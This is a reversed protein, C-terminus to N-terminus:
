KTVSWTSDPVCGIGRHIVSYRLRNRILEWFQFITAVGLDCMHGLTM